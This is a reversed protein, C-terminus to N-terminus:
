VCGLVAAPLTLLSLDGKKISIFLLLHSTSFSPPTTAAWACNKRRLNKSTGTVKNIVETKKKPALEM